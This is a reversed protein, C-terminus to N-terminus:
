RRRCGPCRSARRGRAAPRPFRYQLGRSLRARHRGILNLVWMELLLVALSAMFVVWGEFDHLIGEAMENGWVRGLGRDPRHAPQEDAGHDPHHLPVIVARKWFPARYIYAVIFGVVMLPFLYRLGSCAEVVQLKMTALHIVNGELYM